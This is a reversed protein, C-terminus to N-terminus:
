GAMYAKPNLAKTGRRLEFHLQPKDVSGTSGVTGIKDGRKITQGRKVTAKDLHAYASMWRDAHRILILNGTGKLDNGVYVVVGNEAAKVAAGKAAAINIGDNHRGDPKSGYSSIINGRVPKLFKSSARAPTRSTVKVPKSKTQPKTISTPKQGPKVVNSSTKPKANPTIVEPQDVSAIQVPIGQGTKRPKTKPQPKSKIVPPPIRLNQGDYVKYPDQLSNLRVMESKSVDFLLAISHLTDGGRVVYNRPPPLKLRQGIKLHYPANLENATIIDRMPLKYRKSISYLTDNQLITHIGASGAGETIGHHTVPAPKQSCAVLLVTLAILPLKNWM